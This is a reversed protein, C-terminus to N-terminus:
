NNPGQLWSALHVLVTKQPIKLTPELDFINNKLNPGQFRSGLHWRLPGVEFNPGDKMIM